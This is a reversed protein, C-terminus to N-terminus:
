LETSTTDWYTRQDRAARHWGLNKLEYFPFNSSTKISCNDEESIAKIKNM